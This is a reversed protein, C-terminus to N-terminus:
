RPLEVSLRRLGESLYPDLAWLSSEHKKAEWYRPGRLQTDPRHKVRRQFWLLTRNLDPCYTLLRDPVEMCEGVGDRLLIDGSNSKFFFRHYVSFSSSSSPATLTTPTKLGTLWLPNDWWWWWRDKLRWPRQPAVSLKAVLKRWKKGQEGSGEPVQRVRPRDM